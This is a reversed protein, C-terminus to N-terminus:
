EAGGPFGSSAPPISRVVAGLILTAERDAVMGPPLPHFPAALEALTRGLGPHVLDPALEALPVILFPREPIDPDPIVLSDVAVVLAGMLAIDLDLTRPAFRSGRRDRAREAEIQRLRRKLALPSLETHSLVAGNLYDPQATAVGWPVTRYVTSVAAVGVMEHLRRLGILLHTLPELNAGFAILIPTAAM